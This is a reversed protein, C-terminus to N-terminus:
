LKKSEKIIKLFEKTENFVNESSIVASIAAISDAGASIIDKINEKKIGGLAVIPINVNKRVLKIESLGIPEIADKKTETKFIPALGIYDAGLIEADVAEKTNHVTLGIIKNPGLKKRANEYSIDDKGVHLGDADVALAVDLDDNVIFLAKGECVEKIKKAEKIMKQLDKNKERYQVVKCGANLANKVDSIISNKTLNSDTIFYFDIDSLDIL